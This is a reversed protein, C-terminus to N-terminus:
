VWVQCILAPEKTKGTFTGICSTVFKVEYEPHQDLWENITEDMYALSEDTLKAHFTRVHTAGTGTVNPSRQWNEAHRVPRGITRIKKSGVIGPGTQPPAPPAPDLEMPGEDAAPEDGAVVEREGGGSGADRGVSAADDFRIKPLDGAPSSPPSGGPRSDADSM